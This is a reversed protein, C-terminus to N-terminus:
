QSLQRMTRGGELQMRDELPRSAGFGRIKAADDLDKPGRIADYNINRNISKKDVLMRLDDRVNTPLNQVKDLDKGGNEVLNETCNQYCPPSPKFPYYYCDCAHAQEVCVTFCFLIFAIKKM